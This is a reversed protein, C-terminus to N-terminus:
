ATLYKEFKSRKLFNGTKMNPCVSVAKNREWCLVQRQFDIMDNLVAEKFADTSEKRNMYMLYDDQIRESHQNREQDIVSSKLGRQINKKQQSSLSIITMNYM